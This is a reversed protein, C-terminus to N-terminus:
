GHYAGIESCLFSAIAAFHVFWLPSPQEGRRLLRTGSTPCIPSALRHPARRLLQHWQPRNPYLLAEIDDLPSYNWHGIRCRIFVCAPNTFPASNNHRHQCRCRLRFNPSPSVPAQEEILPLDFKWVAAGALCLWAAAAAGKPRFKGQRGQWLGQFGPYSRAKGRKSQRGRFFSSLVDSGALFNLVEATLTLFTCCGM